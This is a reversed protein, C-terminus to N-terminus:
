FDDAEGQDTFKTETYEKEVLMGAELDYGLYFTEGTSQGTFRDKIIRVTTRQREQLEEAQTNREFGFMFHAWYIIARSGKFHKAMVRGGEEHPTGDPTALHSVVYMNINLEQCLSSMEATIRELERRENEAHACLATLHDVYFDTVGESMALWRINESISDWDKSGFHDYLFVSDNETLADIAAELDDDTWDGDSQPLHFRKGFTKGALRKGTEVVPQELLFMAVKHGNAIDEAIQQLFFDTKGIGSGAGFFYLEGPRRGYTLQTLRDFIWPRGTETEKKMEEKLSSLTVIGDPKWPQANFVASVIDRALGAQLMENPDKRSLSAIKAKMGFLQACEKAALQGPEDMDFMFIIEPFSNLYERSRTCVKLASSAGNPISVVPYKNGQAQSVSLADIEGETVVIKLGSGAPWINQFVLGASDSDGLYRFDKGKLRVKQAVINGDQDPINVAHARQGKYDAVRYNLKKCTEETIGRGSWPEGLPLLESAM